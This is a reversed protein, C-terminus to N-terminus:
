SQSLRRAVEDALARAAPPHFRLFLEPEVLELEMLALAGENDRVVDVRAYAPVPECAAAARRAFRLEEPTATHAHVTGGHDDQVRFDGSKAVKRVAHTCEGGIVVLTLEGREVIERQFPQVMMSEEALLRDLVAQHEGASERDIRYTHRAAGSVAPKLVADDWGQEELLAALEVSEGREVFRTPVTRVGRGSLESLYHKDLNWRVQDIPNVLATRSQVHDLWASFQPFRDFYDWTTRFVACRVSAWDFSPNAWDVRVSRLGHAALGARVLADEDLINRVYWDVRDLAPDEYRADTLLAVDYSSM